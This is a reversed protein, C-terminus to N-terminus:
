EFEIEVRQCRDGDGRAHEPFVVPNREDVVGVICPLGDPAVVPGMHEQRFVGGVCLNVAVEVRDDVTKWAVYAVRFLLHELGPEVDKTGPVEVAEDHAERDRVVEPVMGHVRDAPVGGALVKRDEKGGEPAVGAQRLDENLFTPLRLGHGDGPLVQALGAREVRAGGGM